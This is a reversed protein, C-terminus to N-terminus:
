DAPEQCDGASWEDPDKDIRGDSIGAKQSGVIPEFRDFSKSGILGSNSRSLELPFLGGLYKVIDLGDTENADWKQDISTGSNSTGKSGSQDPIKTKYILRDVVLTVHYQCEPYIRIRTASCGM